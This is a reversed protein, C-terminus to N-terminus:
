MLVTFTEGYNESCVRLGAKCHFCSLYLFSLYNAWPICLCIATVSYQGSCLAMISCKYLQIISVGEPGKLEMKYWRCHYHNLSLNRPCCLSVSDSRWFVSSNILACLPFCSRRLSVSPDVLHPTLSKLSSVASAVTDGEQFQKGLALCVIWSYDWLFGTESYLCEILNCLM